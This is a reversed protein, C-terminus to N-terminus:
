KHHTDILHQIKKELTYPDVIGHFIIARKRGFILIIDAFNFIRGLTPQKLILEKYTDTQEEGISDKVANLLEEETFEKDELSKLSELVNDPIGDNKLLM